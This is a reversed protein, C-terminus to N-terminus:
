KSILTKVLEEIKRLRDKMEQNEAELQTIRSKSNSIEKEQEITYLTLEEIKELLKLQMEGLNQGNTEIENANPINPLHSNAKIFAELEPITRLAYDKNFVYDPVSGPTATVKVKQSFLTQNVSLNGNPIEVHGSTRARLVVRDFIQNSMFDGGGSIVTFSDDSDNDKLGIVFHGNGNGKFITGFNSGNILGVIDSDSNSYRELMTGNVSLLSSFNGSGAVDLKYQPNSTGIGVRMTNFDFRTLVGKSTDLGGESNNFPHINLYGGFYAGISPNNTGSRMMLGWNADNSLRMFAESTGSIPRFNWAAGGDDKIRLNNGPGPNAGIGINGNESYIPHGTHLQTQASIVGGITLFLIITLAKQM